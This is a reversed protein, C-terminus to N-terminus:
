SPLVGPSSIPALPARPSVILQPACLTAYLSFLIPAIQALQRVCNLGNPRKPANEGWQISIPFLFLFLPLFLFRLRRGITWLTFPAFKSQTRGLTQALHKPWTEPWNAAWKALSAARDAPWLIPAGRLHFHANRRQPLSARDQRKTAWKRTWKTAWRACKTAPNHRALLHELVAARTAHTQLARAGTGCDVM